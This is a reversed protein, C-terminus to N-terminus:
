KVPCVLQCSGQLCAQVACKENPCMTCQDGMTPCDESVKCEAPNAPCAFVCKNSICEFGACSGDGCSVCNPPATGCDMATECATGGACSPVEPLCKGERSCFSKAMPPADCAGNPCPNCAEGCALGACPDANKCGEYQVQCFGMVCSGTPCAKTGDGCDLCGMATSGPCDADAGCKVPCGAINDLVCRGASCYSKNCVMSGDACVVCPGRSCDTDTMCMEEGSMAGTGPTPTGGSTAGQGYAGMSMAGGSGTGTRGGSGTSGMGSGNSGTAGSGTAGSGTAKTGAVEMGTDDGKGISSEGGCATLASLVLPLAGWLKNSKM